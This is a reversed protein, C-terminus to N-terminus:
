HLFRRERKLIAPVELEDLVPETHGNVRPSNAAAAMAAM